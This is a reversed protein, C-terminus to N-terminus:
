FIYLASLTLPYSIGSLRGDASAAYNIRNLEGRLALHSNLRYQGGAGFIVGNGFGTRTASSGDAFDTTTKGFGLRFLLNFDKVPTANQVLSLGVLKAPNNGNVNGLKISSIELVDVDTGAGLSFNAGGSSAGGAVYFLGSDDAMANLSLSTLVLAVFHLKKM